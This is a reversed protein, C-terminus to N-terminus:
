VGEGGIVSLLRPEPIVRPCARALGTMAKDQIKIIENEVSRIDIGTARLIDNDTAVSRLAFLYAAGYNGHMNSIIPNIDSNSAVSWRAAQRLLSNIGKYNLKPQENIESHKRRIYSILAVFLIAISLLVAFDRIRPTDIYKASLYIMIAGHAMVILENM